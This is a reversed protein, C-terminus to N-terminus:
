GPGPALGSVRAQATEFGEARASAGVTDQGQLQPPDPHARPGQGWSWARPSCESIPQAPSGRKIPPSVPGPLLPECCPHPQLRPNGRHEPRWRLVTGDWGPHLLAPLVGAGRLEEPEAAGVGESIGRRWGLRRLGRKRRRRAEQGRAGTVGTGGCRYASGGGCPQGGDWGPAAASCGPQGGTEMRHLGPHAGARGARASGSKGVRSWATAELGSQPGAPSQSPLDRSQSRSGEYRTWLPTDM